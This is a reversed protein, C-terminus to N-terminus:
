SGLLPPDGAPWVCSPTGSKTPAGKPSPLASPCSPVAASRAPSNRLLWQSDELPYSIIMAQRPGAQWALRRNVSWGKPRYWGSFFLVVRIVNVASDEMLSAKRVVTAQAVRSAGRDAASWGARRDDKA